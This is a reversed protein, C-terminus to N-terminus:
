RLSWRQVMRCPSIPPGAAEGRTGTGIIEARDADQLAGALAESADATSAEVLVAMPVEDEGVITGEGEIFHETRSGASDLEYMFTGSPLFEGAVKRAADVPGGPNFRLDLILALMDAAKLREVVDLVETPTTDRFESIYVYGIAGPLLQVDM